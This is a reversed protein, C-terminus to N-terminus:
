LDFRANVEPMEIRTDKLHGAFHRMSRRDGHVLFTVAPEGTQQHWALLERQDAHASFGNITYIHAKVPVDEGFLRVKSAGDIIHRALTGEAAYGVFIVSCNSRSLNHRLHHRVRGSTCM